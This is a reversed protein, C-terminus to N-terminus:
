VKVVAKGGLTLVRVQKAFRQLQSILGNLADQDVIREFFVFIEDYEQQSLNYLYNTVGQFEPSKFSIKEYITSDEHAYIPSRTTSHYYVNEGMQTALVMPIYMFEGTGLVLSKKGMRMAKLANGIPQLRNMYQEKEVVTCGFRGTGMYYNAECSQGEENVSQCERLDYSLAEEFSQAEIVTAQSTSKTLSETEILDEHITLKFQGQLISVAHIEIELEQALEVLDRVNDEDRWDLISVLTYEKIHPFAKVLQRIINQNTKGTTMEDDVLVVEVNGEFFDPASYLRHRSAHSHEEEFTIIPKQGILQERTTHAYRVDGSFADFFAHGLATATEAFGIIRLSKKSQIPHKQILQLTEFFNEGQKLAKVILDTTEVLLDERVEGYRHALLHSILIPVQPRVALHKGLVKSVFLFSRKKNIRMAMDFLEQQQFGYPNETINVDVTFKNLVHYSNM